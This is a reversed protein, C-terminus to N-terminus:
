SACSSPLTRGLCRPSASAVPVAHVRLTTARLEMLRTAHVNQPTPNNYLVSFSLHMCTRRPYRCLLLAIRWDTGPTQCEDGSVRLLATLEPLSARQQIADVPGTLCTFTCLEPAYMVGLGRVDRVVAQLTCHLCSNITAEPAFGHQWM